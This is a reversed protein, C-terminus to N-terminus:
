RGWRAGLGAALVCLTVVGLASALNEALPRDNGMGIAGTAFASMTTIGGFFGTVVLPRVWAEGGTTQLRALVFGALLCGTVNIVHLM